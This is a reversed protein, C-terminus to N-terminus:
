AGCTLFNGANYPGWFTMVANVIARWLDKHAVNMWDVSDLGLEGLELQINDEWEHKYRGLPRHAKPKGVLIKYAKRM